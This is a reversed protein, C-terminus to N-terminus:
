PPSALFFPAPASLTVPAHYARLSYDKSVSPYLYM